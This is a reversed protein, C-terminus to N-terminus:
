RIRWDYVKRDPTVIRGASSAGRLSRTDFFIPFWSKRTLIINNPFKEGPSRHRITPPRRDFAKLSTAMTAVYDLVTDGYKLGVTRRPTSDRQDFTPGMARTSVSRYGYNECYMEGLDTSHDLQLLGVRCGGPPLQGTTISAAPDRSVRWDPKNGLDVSRSGSVVVASAVNSLATYSGM